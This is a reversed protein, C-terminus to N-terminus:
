RGAATFQLLAPVDTM